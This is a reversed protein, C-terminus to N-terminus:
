TGTREEATYRPKPTHPGVQKRIKERKKKDVNGRGGKKKKYAGRPRTEKRGEPKGPKRPTRAWECPRHDRTQSVEVKRRSKEGKGKEKRKEGNKKL